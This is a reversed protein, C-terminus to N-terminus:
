RPKRLRFVFEDYPYCLATPKAWRDILWGGDGSRVLGFVDPHGDSGAIQKM